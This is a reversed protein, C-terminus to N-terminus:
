LRCTILLTVSYITTRAYQSQTDHRRVHHRQTQLNNALCHGRTQTSYVDVHTWTLARQAYRSLRREDQPDSRKAIRHGRTNSSVVPRQLGVSLCTARIMFRSKEVIFLRTCTTLLAIAEGDPVSYDDPFSVYVLVFHADRSSCRAIHWTESHICSPANHVDYTM